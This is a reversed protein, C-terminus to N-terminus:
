RDAIRPLNPFRKTFGGLTEPTGETWWGKSHCGVAIMNELMGFAHRHDIGINAVTISMLRAGRLHGQREGLLRAACRDAPASRTRDPRELDSRPQQAGR